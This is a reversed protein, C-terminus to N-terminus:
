SSPFLFFNLIPSDLEVPRPPILSCIINSHWRHESRGHFGRVLKQSHDQQLDGQLSVSPFSPEALCIMCPETPSDSGATVLSGLRKTSWKRGGKLSGGLSPRIPRPDFLHRSPAHFYSGSTQFKWWQIRAGTSYKILASSLLSSTHVGITTMRPVVLVRLRLRHTPTAGEHRAIAWPAVRVLLASTGTRRVRETPSRTALKGSNAPDLGHSNEMRSIPFAPFDFKVFFSALASETHHDSTRPCEWSFPIKLSAKPRQSCCSILAHLKRRTM